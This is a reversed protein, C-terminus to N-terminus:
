SAAGRITEARVKVRRLLGRVIFAHAGTGIVLSRYVTGTFGPFVARTEARVQTGGGESPDVAVRLRYTSFRHRGILVLEGPPASTAVLFGPLTSGVTPPRPGSADAPDCGIVRAYRAFAGSAGRDLTDLLVNWVTEADADVWVGHEDVFPLEAGDM